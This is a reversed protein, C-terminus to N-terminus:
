LLLNIKFTKNVPISPDFGGGLKIRVGTYIIDSNCLGSCNCVTGADPGSAPYLAKYRVAQVDAADVRFTSLMAALIVMRAIASRRPRSAESAKDSNMRM